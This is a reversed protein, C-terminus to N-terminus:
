YTIHTLNRPNDYGVWKFLYFCRTKAQSFLDALLGTVFIVRIREIKVRM